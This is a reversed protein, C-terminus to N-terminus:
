RGADEMLLHIEPAGVHALEDIQRATIAISGRPVTRAELRTSTTSIGSTCDTRCFAGNRATIRAIVTMVSASTTISTASSARM